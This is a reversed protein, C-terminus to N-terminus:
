HQRKEVRRKQHKRNFWNTDMAGRRPLTSAYLCDRLENHQHTVGRHSNGSRIFVARGTTLQARTLSGEKEEHHYPIKHQDLWQMIKRNQHRVPGGAYYSMLKHTWQKKYPRGKAIWQAVEVGGSYLSDFLFLERVPYGGHKICALAARYGGSHSSLCLHGIRSRRHLGAKGLAREAQPSQLTKRLDTLLRLLGNKDSLKGPHGTSARLPLQPIVLIANQRSEALQERLEHNDMAEAATTNHGHFHMVVHVERKQNASVRHHHPVYVIVTNDRWPKGRYPFPAEELELYLTTGLRGREVEKVRSGGKPAGWTQTPALAAGLLGAGLWGLLARRTPEQPSRTMDQQSYGDM